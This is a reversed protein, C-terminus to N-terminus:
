EGLNLNDINIGSLGADLEYQQIKDWIQKSMPIGEELRKKEIIAAKEVNGHIAEIAFRGSGEVTKKFQNSTSLYEISHEPDFEHYQQPDLPWKFGADWVLYDLLDDFDEPTKINDRLYARYTAWMEVEGEFVEPADALQSWASKELLRTKILQREEDIKDIYTASKAMEVIERSREIESNVRQVEISAKLVNFLEKIQGESMEGYNYRNYRAKKTTFDFKMKEKDLIYEGDEYISFDVIRDNDNTWEDPLNKLLNSNVTESLKCANYSYEGDSNKIRVIMLRSVANWELIPKHKEPPTISEFQFDEPNFAM